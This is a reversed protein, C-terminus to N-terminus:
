FTLEMFNPVIGTKDVVQSTCGVGTITGAVYYTSLVEQIISILQPPLFPLFGVNCPLQPHKLYKEYVVENLIM